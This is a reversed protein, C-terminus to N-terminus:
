HEQIAELLFSKWDNHKNEIRYTEKRKWNHRRLTIDLLVIKTRWIEQWKEISYWAIWIWIFKWSRKWQLNEWRPIPLANPSITFLDTSKTCVRSPQLQQSPPLLDCCIESSNGRVRNKNKAAYRWDFAHSYLITWKSEWPICGFVNSIGVYQLLWARTCRRFQFYCWLICGNSTWSLTSCDVFSLQKCKENPGGQKGKRKVHRSESRKSM